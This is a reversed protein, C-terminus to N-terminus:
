IKNYHQRPTYIKNVDEQIMRHLERSIHGFPSVSSLMCWDQPYGSVGPFMCWDQPHGSVSPLMCWDQPTGAAGPGHYPPKFLFMGGKTEMQHFQEPLILLHPRTLLPPDRLAPKTTELAEEWRWNARERGQTKPHSTARSVGGMSHSGAVVNGATILM